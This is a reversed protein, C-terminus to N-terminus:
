VTIGGSEQKHARQYRSRGCVRTELRADWIAVADRVRAVVGPHPGTDAVLVGTTRADSVRKAAVEIFVSLNTSCQMKYFLNM